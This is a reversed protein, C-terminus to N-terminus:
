NLIVGPRSLSNRLAVQGSLCPPNPKNIAYKRSWHDGWSARQITQSLDCTMRFGAFLSPM